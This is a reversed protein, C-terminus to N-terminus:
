AFNKTHELGNEIIYKDRAKAAEIIDNYRGLNKTKNELTITAIWKKRQKDWSVGRYGSTNLDRIRRTNRCQTTQTAWRCNNIEYDGNPDIRDLSLGEQYSPYMDEIFNKIDLWRECVKIGRYGYLIYNINNSDYCRSIMQKYTGYLRHNSYGHSTSRKVTYCGCSKILGHNVRTKIAKFENGCFCKYIGMSVRQKSNATAYCMGLDEILEPEKYGIKLLIIEKQNNKLM